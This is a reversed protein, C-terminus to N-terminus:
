VNKPKTAHKQLYELLLKWEAISQESIAKNGRTVVDCLRSYVEAGSKYRHWQLQSPSKEGEM